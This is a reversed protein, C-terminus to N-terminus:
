AWSLRLFIPGAAVDLDEIAAWAGAWRRASGREIEVAIALIGREAWAADVLVRTAVGDEVMWALAARVYERATAATEQTQKGRSLLWLLSGFRDNPDDPWWGRPEGDLTPVVAEPPARGDSLLSVLVATVLGDDHVLDGLELDIDLSDGQYTLAADTM